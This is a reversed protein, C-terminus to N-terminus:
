AQSASLQDAQVCQASDLFFHFSAITLATTVLAHGFIGVMLMWSNDPPSQWLLNTLYTISIELMLFLSTISYTSRIIRISAKISNILNENFLFIAQPTFVMPIFVSLLIMTMIFYGIMGVIPHIMSLLTILLIVPIGVVVLALVMLLPLAIANLLLRGFEKLSTKKLPTHVADSCKQFYITGLLIGLLSFGFLALLLTSESGIETISYSGFPTEKPVRGALLSPVGVPITRLASSVSFYQFYEKALDLFESWIAGTEPTTEGLASFQALFKQALTSITYRPSLLLFLDLGIPFLILYIHNAVSKFGVALAPLIKPQNRITSNINM